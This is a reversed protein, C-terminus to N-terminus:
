DAIRRIVRTPATWEALSVHKWDAPAPDSIVGATHLDQWIRQKIGKCRLANNVSNKRWSSTVVLQAPDVLPLAHRLAPPIMLWAKIDKGYGFVYVREADYAKAQLGCSKLRAAFEEVTM